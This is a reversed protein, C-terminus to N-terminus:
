NSASCDERDSTFIFSIRPNIELPNEDFNSKSKYIVIGIEPNLEM